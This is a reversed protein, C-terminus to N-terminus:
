QKSIKPTQTRVLWGFAAFAQSAEGLALECLLRLHRDPWHFDPM